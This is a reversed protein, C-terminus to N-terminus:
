DGLGDRGTANQSPLNLTKEVAKVAAPASAQNMGAACAAAGAATVTRGAVIGVNTGKGDVNGVYGYATQGTSLAQAATAVAQAAAELENITNQQCGSVVAAGAGLAMGLLLAHSRLFGPLQIM